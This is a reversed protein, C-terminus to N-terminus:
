PPIRGAVAQECLTLMREVDSSSCPTRDIRELLAGAVFLSLGDMWRPAEGDAYAELLGEALTRHDGSGGGAHDGDAGGHGHGPADHMLMLDALCGGLDLGPHSHRCRGFRWLYFRGDVGYHVSDLGFRGHIPSLPAGYSGAGRLLEHQVQCLRLRIRGARDADGPPLRGSAREGCAHWEDLVADWPEEPFELRSRHLARLCKGLRRGMRYAAGGGGHLVLYTRLGMWPNYDYLVARESALCALPAPIRVEKTRLDEHMARAAEFDARAEQSSPFTHATFIASAPALERRSRVLCRVTAGEREPFDYLRVSEFCATTAGAHSAITGAPLESPALLEPHESFVDHLRAALDSHAAGGPQAAPAAPSEPFPGPRLLFRLLFTRGGDAFSIVSLARDFTRFGSGENSFYQTRDCFRRLTLATDFGGGQDTIAIVAGDPTVDVEVEIAKSQDRDNGHREANGLGRKLPELLDRALWLPGVDAFRTSLVLELLPFLDDRAHGLIRVRAARDALFASAAPDSLAEVGRDAAAGIELRMDHRTRRLDIM